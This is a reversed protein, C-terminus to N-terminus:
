PSWSIKQGLQRSKPVIKKFVLDEPNQDWGMSVELWDALTNLGIDYIKSWDNAQSYTALDAVM